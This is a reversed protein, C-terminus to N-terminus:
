TCILCRGEDGEISSIENCGICVFTGEKLFFNYCTDTHGVQLVCWDRKTCASSEPEETDAVKKSSTM